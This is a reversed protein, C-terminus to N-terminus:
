TVRRFFTSILVQELMLLALALLAFAWVIRRATPRDDPAVVDMRLAMLVVLWWVVILYIVNFSIEVWM